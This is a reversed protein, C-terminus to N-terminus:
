VLEKSSQVWVVVGLVRVPGDEWRLVIDPHESHSDAVLMLTDGGRYWRRMVAEHGDTEVVAVSGNAPNLDPDFVVAMGPLAFRDMCDGEVVLARARPHNELVTAPVEVKNEIAVEESFPGAHVRGLTILPVTARNGSYISIGGAMGYEEPMPSGSYTRVAQLLQLDYENNDIWQRVKEIPARVIDHVEESSLGYDDIFDYIQANPARGLARGYEEDSSASGLLQSVSVHFVDALKDLRQMRPTSFGSEWQTVTTRGVGVKEALEEQTM